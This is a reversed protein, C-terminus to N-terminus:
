GIGPTKILNKENIVQAYNDYESPEVVVKYEAGMRDLTKVTQRRKWRGKSIVYIPFKNANM